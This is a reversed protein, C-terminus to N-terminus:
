PRRRSGLDLVNDDPGGAPPTGTIRDLRETLEAVQERLEFVIKALIFFSVAGSVWLLGAFILADTPTM